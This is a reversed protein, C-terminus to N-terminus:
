RGSSAEYVESSYVGPSDLVMGDSFVFIENETTVSAPWKRANLMNPLPSVRGTSPDMLDVKSSWPNDRGEEWGGIFLIKNQFSGIRWCIRDPLKLEIELDSCESNFISVVTDGFLIKRTALRERRLSAM